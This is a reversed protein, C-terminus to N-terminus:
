ADGEAAKKARWSAKKERWAQQKAEWEARTGNYKVYSRITYGGPLDDLWLGAGVLEAVYAPKHRPTLRPVRDASVYGDTLQRAAWCMGAVYLRFAGDSLGDVAPDDPMRDDIKVWM